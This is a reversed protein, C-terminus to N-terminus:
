SAMWKLPKQSKASIQAFVAFFRSSANSPAFPVNQKSVKVAWNAWSNSFDYSVSTKHTQDQELIMSLSFRRPKEEVNMVKEHKLIIILCQLEHKM